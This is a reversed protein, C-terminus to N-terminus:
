STTAPSRAPDTANAGYWVHVLQELGDYQYVDAPHAAEHWRQMYKRNGLADYGYRYDAIVQPPKATFVRLIQYLPDVEYVTTVGNAHALTVWGTDDDYSYTAVNAGDKTVQRLRGLPDNAHVVHPGSPYITTTRGTLYGYQYGTTWSRGDVTQTHSTVDGLANYAFTLATTHGSMQQDASAMRDMLDYGFSQFSADPYDKRTLQSLGDYTYSVVVGAQDTRTALAGDPHYTFGVTSGDAYRTDTRQNADDYSYTTTHLNSDTITALNRNIDYAYTTQEGIDPAITRESLVQDHANYAYQTVINRGTAGDPTYDRVQRVLNGKGDYEYKAVIGAADTETLKRGM